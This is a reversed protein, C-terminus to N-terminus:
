GRGGRVLVKGIRQMMASTDVNYLNCNSKRDTDRARLAICLAVIARNTAPLMLLHCISGICSGDCVV